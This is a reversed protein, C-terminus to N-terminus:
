CGDGSSRTCAQVIDLNLREQDDPFIRLHRVKDALFIVDRETDDAVVGLYVLLGQEIKGCIGDDNTVSAQSVRQVIARM